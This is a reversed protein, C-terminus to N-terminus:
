KKSNVTFYTQILTLVLGAIAGSFAIFSWSSFYRSYIWAVWSNCYRHINETVGLYMWEDPVLDRSMRRILDTVEEDSGYYNHLMGTARLEKVDEETEILSVLFSM